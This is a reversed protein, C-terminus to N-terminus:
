LGQATAPSPKRDSWFLSLPGWHTSHKEEGNENSGARARNVDPARLRDRRTSGEVRTPRQRRVADRREDAVRVPDRDVEAAVPHDAVATGVRDHEVHHRMREQLVTAHRAPARVTLVTDDHFALRVLDQANADVTCGNLADHDVALSVAERLHVR